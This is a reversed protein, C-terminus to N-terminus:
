NKYNYQNNTLINGDADKVFELRNFTDYTYYITEGRPNTISTVGILPDYTYTTVQANPLAKRLLTLKDRLVKENCNGSDLCRSTDSNSATVATKIKTQVATIQADTYGEIKAIPQTKHYGWVYYIKTGDKKSVIKPNGRNDYSHYIILDELVNTGKAQSYKYIPYTYNNINNHTIYKRQHLFKELKIRESNLTIEKEVIPTLFNSSTMYSYPYSSFNHSYKIKTEIIENNSTTEKINSIQNYNNYLYDKNVTLSDIGFYSTEKSSILQSKYRKKIPYGGIQYIACYGNDCPSSIGTTAYFVKSYKAGYFSGYDIISTYNNYKKNLLVDNKDYVLESAILGNDLNHKIPPLTVANSISTSSISGINTIDDPNNKFYSVIKGNNISDQENHIQKEIVKDYGVYNGSASTSITAINSSSISLKTANFFRQICSNSTNIKHQIKFDSKKAYILPTMLKGGEYEYSKKTALKLNSSYNSIEKIRLGGGKSITNHTNSNFYSLQLFAQSSNITGNYSGCGGFARAYVVGKNFSYNLGSIIQEQSGNIQMQIIEEKDIYQNFNSQNFNSTGKILGLVGMAHAPSYYTGNDVLLQLSEKFSYIKIYTDSYATNLEVSTCGRVSLLATGSFRVNDQRLTIIESGPTNSTTPNTDIRISAPTANYDIAPALYNDFSNLEYTFETYGGTPYSIKKLVASKAHELSAGKNNNEYDDLYNNEDQYNFRYLNPFTTVNSLYGNYFGWYDSALSTKQPLPLTENYNFTYSPKGLEELSNLKLRHTKENSTKTVFNSYYNLDNNLNTGSTHGIFYGYNFNFTKLATSALNRKIEIRDLKKAGVLDIRDSTTFSIIGEPFTISSLYSYKQKVLSKSKAVDYNLFGLPFSDSISKKEFISLSESISPYGVIENTLSYNFTIVDGKNTQIQTLQYTRSAREQRVSLNLGGGGSISQSGNAVYISEEKLEFLFQHGEPVTILFDSPEQNSSHSNPLIKIGKDTLCVFTESEWDLLFSGSYGLFNFKFIDPESDWYGSTYSPHINNMKNGNFFSCGGVGTGGGVKANIYFNSCTGISSPTLSSSITEFDPLMRSSYFGFDDTGNVIQTISGADHLTWGLGTWGSEENVRFGNSHYTLNIPVNLGRVEINYIPISINPVGTYKGVPVEGYKMFEFSKPNPPLVSPLKTNENMQGNVTNVCLLCICVGFLLKKM